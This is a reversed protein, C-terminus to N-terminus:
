VLFQNKNSLDDIATESALGLNVGSCRVQYVYVPLTFGFKLFYTMSKSFFIQFPRCQKMTMWESIKSICNRKNKVKHKHILGISTQWGYCVRFCIKQFNVNWMKQPVFGKFPNIHLFFRVDIYWGFVFVFWGEAM